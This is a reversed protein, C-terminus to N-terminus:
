TSSFVSHNSKFRFTTQAEPLTTDSLSLVAWGVVIAIVDAVVVVVVVVDRDRTTKSKMQM